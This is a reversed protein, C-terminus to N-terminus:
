RAAMGSARAASWAAQGCSFVRNASCIVAAGTVRVFGDCERGDACLASAVIEHANRRHACDRLGGIRLGCDAIRLGLQGDDDVGGARGAMGLARHQGVGIQQGVQFAAAHGQFGDPFVAEGHEQGHEVTEHERHPNQQREVDAAGNHQDFRQMRGLIDQLFDDAM